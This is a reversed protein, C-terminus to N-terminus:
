GRVAAQVASTSAQEGDGASSPIVVESSEPGPSRDLRRWADQFHASLLLAGGTTACFVGGIVGSALFSLRDAQSQSSAIAVLAALVAFTGGALLLSGLLRDWQARVPRLVPM